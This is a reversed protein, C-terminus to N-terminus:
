VKKIRAITFGADTFNVPQRSVHDWGAAMSNGDFDSRYFKGKNVQARIYSRLAQRAVEYDGFTINQFYRVKKGNRKIVYM